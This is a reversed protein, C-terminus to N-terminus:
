KFNQSTQSYACIKTLHYFPSSNQYKAQDKWREVSKKNRQSQKQKLRWKAKKSENHIYENANILDTQQTNKIM